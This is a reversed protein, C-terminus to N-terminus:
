MKNAQEWITQLNDPNFEIDLAVVKGNRDILFTRPVYMSAYLSYITKYPDIGMEFPYSYQDRFAITEELTEERSIALLKFKPPNDSILRKLEAFQNHCDPCSTSFFILMVAEGRLSSLQREGGDILKVSFDPAVEGINVYTSEEHSPQNSMICGSACFLMVMCLTFYYTKTRPKM